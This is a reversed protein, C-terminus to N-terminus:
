NDEDYGYNNGDGGKIGPVPVEKSSGGRGM